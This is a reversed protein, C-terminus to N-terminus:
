LVSLLSLVCLCKQLLITTSHCAFATPCVYMCVAKEKIKNCDHAKMSSYTVWIRTQTKNKELAYGKDKKSSRYCIIQRIQEDM